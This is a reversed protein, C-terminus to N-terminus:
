KRNLAIKNCFKYLLAIFTAFFELIIANLKFKFFSISWGKFHIRKGTMFIGRRWSKPLKRTEQNEFFSMFDVLLFLFFINQLLITFIHMICKVGLRMAYAFLCGVRGAVMEMWIWLWLVVLFGYRRKICPMYFYWTMTM